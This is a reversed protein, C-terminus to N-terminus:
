TLAMEVVAEHHAPILAAGHLWQIPTAGAAFRVTAPTAGHNILVAYRGGHLTVALGAADSDIPRMIEPTLLRYLAHWPEAGDSHFAGPTGTLQTEVPVATLTVRGKGYVRSTVIPTGDSTAALM